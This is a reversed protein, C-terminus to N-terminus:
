NLKLRQLRIILTLVPHRNLFKSPINFIFDITKTLETDFVNGAMVAPTSESSDEGAAVSDFRTVQYAPGGAIEWETKSTNILYYGM